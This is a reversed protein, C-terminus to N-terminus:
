AKAEEPEPVEGAEEDQESANAAKKEAASELHSSYKWGAAFLASFLGSSLLTNRFFEWTQPWSGAGKTLAILWGTLDKTYEPNGFPNFLWAATNTVLYFLIAGLIAGGTLLAISQRADFKRGLWILGAYLPYNVLQYVQFAQINLVFYYYCNLALDTFALLLLPMWWAKANRFFVGACFMLAYAASFNPPMLGPWRTVAFLLLFAAILWVQRRDKMGSMSRLGSGNVLLLMRDVAFVGACECSSRRGPPQRACSM